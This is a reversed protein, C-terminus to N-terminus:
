GAMRAAGLRRSITVLAVALGVCWLGMALCQDPFDIGADILLGTAGPGVATSFVMATTTMARVGGLHRTGYLEPWLAGWIANSMGQTLAILALAAIWTEVGEGPAILAIGAAMPLPFVPLLRAPGVRDAAWGTALVAMVTLAAYVPYGLAMDALDWGKVGAIHVPHFFIVTGIFSPTLVAPLLVWFSWHGLVARRDWHRGDLGATQDAGAADGRPRRGESLLWALLPVLAFALLAAAVGWTERWGVLGILGVTVAPLVAEGGSFGLGAIAVARGRHGRFWRGMATMAIHGMMGQGCFRLGFVLVPLLWVSDMTAMGLALVAYALGVITALRALPVTDALRGLQFLLAASALTAGTYITGWTGDTLGYAAAIQGAFLSIFFTQGFSSAFTLAVGAGLWRANEALFSRAM